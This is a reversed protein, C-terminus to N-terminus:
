KDVKPSPGYANADAMGERLYCEGIVWIWGVFPIYNVWWQMSRGIDHQRKVQLAMIVWGFPVMALLTLPVHWLFHAYSQTQGVILVATMGAVSLVALGAALNVFSWLWFDRRRIRGGFGFLMQGISMGGPKLM